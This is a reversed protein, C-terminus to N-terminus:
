SIIGKSFHHCDEWTFMKDVPLIHRYHMVKKRKEGEKEYVFNCVLMDLTESGGVFDRLTDLVQLYAERKLWDDSDVFQVYAGRALAINM